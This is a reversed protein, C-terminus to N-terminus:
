RYRKEESHRNCSMVYAIGQPKNLVDEREPRVKLHTIGGNGDRIHLIVHSLDNDKEIM